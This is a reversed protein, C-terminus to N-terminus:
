VSSKAQEVREKSLENFRTPYAEALDNYFTNFLQMDENSAEKGCNKAKKIRQVIM